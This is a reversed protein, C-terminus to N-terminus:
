AVQLHRHGKLIDFSRKLDTSQAMILQRVEVNMGIDTQLADKYAKQAANEDFACSELISKRDSGKFLKKVEMWEKYIKGTITFDTAPMGGLNYIKKTFEKIYNRSNDAMTLFVTQMATDSATTKDAAKECGEIRDNNIKVLDTLTETLQVNTTM